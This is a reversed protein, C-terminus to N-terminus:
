ATTPAGPGPEIPGPGKSGAVRRQQKAQPFEIAGALLEWLAQNEERLRRNEALLAARGPRGRRDEALVQEVREAHQYVTQRSCGAERAQRAVAGWTGWVVTAANGIWASISLSAM